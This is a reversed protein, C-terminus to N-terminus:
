GRVEADIARQLLPAAQADWKRAIARALYRARTGPHNVASVFVAAGSRGGQNSGIYGARTKPRFGSMFRLRKGRRAVIRHARTGQDVYGYIADDTSIVRRAPDPAEITFTPKRAWTQVTVGFDVQIGKAAANLGNTVARALAPADIALRAPIIARM